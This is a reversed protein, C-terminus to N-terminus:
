AAAAAGRVVAFAALSTLKLNKITFFINPLAVNSLFAESGGKPYSPEIAYGQHGGCRSSHPVGYSNINTFLESYRFTYRQVYKKCDFAVRESSGYSTEFIKSKQNSLTTLITLLIGM